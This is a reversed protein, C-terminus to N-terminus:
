EIQSYYAWSTESYKFVEFMEGTNCQTDNSKLIHFPEPLIM